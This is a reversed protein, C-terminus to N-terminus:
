SRRTLQIPLGDKVKPLVTMAWPIEYDSAISWEFRRLMQHLTSKIEMGAFYMGICKHAHSGFPVYIDKHAKDERREEAFREPDFREPDKWYEPMHHTFHPLALVFTGKPLYYGLVETDKVTARFLHPIPTNLRLTEKMVLDLSEMSQLEDFTPHEGLALSEARCREQWEPHKALYYTMMTMAITSTDHAAFMVFIMHDVIQQDTFTDGDESTARCLVSLLDNGEGARKEPILRAIERALFDRAELGRAWETGPLHRDLVPIKVHAGPTKFRVVAGLAVLIDEFARNMKDAREGPEVGMFTSTAIGLAMEKIAPSVRFNKGTPWTDLTEDISANMDDLYGLLKDRGFAAQLIRKHFMHEDFDKLMIADHYFAGLTAGWGDAHSFAKDRNQQVVGWAEPGLLGVCNIGLARRWLVPGDQAYAKKLQGDPDRLYTLTEGAIPLGAARGPIAKLDSGPPPPFPHKSRMPMKLAPMKM